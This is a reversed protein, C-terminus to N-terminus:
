GDKAIGQAPRQAAGHCILQHALRVRRLVTLGIIQLRKSGPQLSAVDGRRESPFRESGEVDNWVYRERLHELYIPLQNYLSSSNHHHIFPNRGSVRLEEPVSLPTCLGISRRPSPRTSLQKAVTGRCFERRALPAVSAFARLSCGQRDKRARQRRVGCGGDRALLARAAASM